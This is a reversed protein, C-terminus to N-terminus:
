LWQVTRGRSLLAQCRWLIVTDIFTIVSPVVKMLLTALMVIPFSRPLRKLVGQVFHGLPEFLSLFSLLARGFRRCSLAEIFHEWMERVKQRLDRRRRAMRVLSSALLPCILTVAVQLLARALLQESLPRMVAQFERLDLEGSRDIDSAAMLELVMTHSPPKVKVVGKLKLYLVLVGAYLEKDDITGSGDIDVATFASKM